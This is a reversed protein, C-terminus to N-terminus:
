RLYVALSFLDVKKVQLLIKDIGCSSEFLTPAKVKYSAQFSLHHIKINYHMKKEEKKKKRPKYSSRVFEVGIICIQKRQTMLVTKKKKPFFLSPFLCM